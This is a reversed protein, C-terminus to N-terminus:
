DSGGRKRVFGQNPEDLGAAISTLAIDFSPLTGTIRPGRHATPNILDLFLLKILKL